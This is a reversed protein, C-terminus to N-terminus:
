EAVEPKFLDDTEEQVAALAAHHDRAAVSRWHTSGAREKGGRSESIVITIKVHYTKV